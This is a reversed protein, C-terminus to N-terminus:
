SRDASTREENQVKMKKIDLVALWAFTKFEMKFKIMNPQKHDFSMWTINSKKAARHEKRAVPDKSGTDLNDIFQSKIRAYQTKFKNYQSLEVQTPYKSYMITIIGRLAPNFNSRDLKSIYKKGAKSILGLEEVDEQLFNRISDM